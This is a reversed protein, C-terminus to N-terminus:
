GLVRGPLATSIEPFPVFGARLILFDAYTSSFLHACKDQSHMGVAISQDV